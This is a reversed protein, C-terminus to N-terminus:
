PRARAPVLETTWSLSLCVFILLELTLLSLVMAAM